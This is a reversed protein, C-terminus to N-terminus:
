NIMVLAGKVHHGLLDTGDGKDASYKEWEFTKNKLVIALFRATQPTDDRNILLAPVGTM